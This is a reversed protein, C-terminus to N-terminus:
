VVLSVGLANVVEGHLKEYATGEGVIQGVEQKLREEIIEDVLLLDIPEGKHFLLRVGTEAVTPQATQSGTEQVGHGGHLKGGRTVTKAIFVTHKLLGYPVAPLM